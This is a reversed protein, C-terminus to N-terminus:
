VDVSGVSGDENQIPYKIITKETKFDYEETPSTIKIEVIDGLKGNYLMVQNLLDPGIATSDPSAVPKEQGSVIVFIVVVAILVASLLLLEKKNIM